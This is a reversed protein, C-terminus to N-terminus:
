QAGRQLLVTKLTQLVIYADLSPSLHKIYYLDYELKRAADELTDGYKHNIQAWGTIGPRVCLRQRFFPIEKSLTAVFEPREPRPGVISMEGRLVNVLQPLEDLRLRRLWRGVLTVRPDNKSAWVAGTEAEANEHMSRFKYLTFHEGQWGVRTQRFLIPGRSSLKIALAVVLLIPLSVVLGILAILRSYFVQLTVIGPRPGLEGAYILQSPRLEALSVRKFMTESASAAEQIHIGSFRLELLDTLPTRGRRETLGVVLRDPRTREVVKRLDGLGGLWPVDPGLAPNPREDIYGAILLGLDPHERVYEVIEGVQGSSGLFVIREDGFARLVVGSYLLRWLIIAVLSLSGGRAWVGGPLMLDSHAYSLLAQFLFAAGISVCVQQVLLLKSRVRIVSYLDHLYLTLVITLTSILIRGLGGDYLLYVVPDTPLILFCVIVFCSIIVIAETILLTRVNSPVLARLLKIM